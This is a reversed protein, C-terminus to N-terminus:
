ARNFNERVFARGNFWREIVCSRGTRDDKALTRDVLVESPWEGKRWYERGLRCDVENRLWFIPETNLVFRRYTRAKVFADLFFLENVNAARALRWPKPEIRLVHDMTAYADCLLSRKSSEDLDKARDWMRFAARMQQHGDMESLFYVRSSWAVGGCLLLLVGAAMGLQKAFPMGMTLALLLIGTLFCMTEMARGQLARVM